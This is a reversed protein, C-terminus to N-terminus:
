VFLFKSSKNQQVNQRHGSKRELEKSKDYSIKTKSENLIKFLAEVIGVLLSVLLILLFNNKIFKRM